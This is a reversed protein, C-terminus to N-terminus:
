EYLSGGSRTQTKCGRPLQNRLSVGCSELGGDSHIGARSDASVPEFLGSTLSVQGLHGALVAVIGQPRRSQCGAGRCMGARGAGGRGTHPGM